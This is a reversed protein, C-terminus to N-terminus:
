PNTITGPVLVFVVFCHAGVADPRLGVVGVVHQQVPGSIWRKEFARMGVGDVEVVVDMGDVGVM